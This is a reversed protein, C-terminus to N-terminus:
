NNLPDHSDPTKSIQTFQNYLMHLQQKNLLNFRCTRTLFSQCTVRGNWVTPPSNNKLIIGSYSYQNRQPGDGLNKQNYLNTLAQKIYHTFCWALFQQNYDAPHGQTLSMVFSAIAFRSQFVQGLFNCSDILVLCLQAFSFFHYWKIRRITYITRPWVSELLLDKGLIIMELHLQVMIGLIGVQELGDSLVDLRPFIAHLELLCLKWWLTSM